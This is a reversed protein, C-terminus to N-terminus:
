PQLGPRRPTVRWRQRETQSVPGNISSDRCSLERPSIRGGLQLGDDAWGPCRPAGVADRLPWWCNGPCTNTRTRNRSSSELPSWTKLATGSDWFGFWWLRVRPSTIIATRYWFGHKGLPKNTANYLSWLLRRGLSPKLVSAIAAIITWVDGRGCPVHQGREEGTAHCVCTANNGSSFINSGGSSPSCSGNQWDM